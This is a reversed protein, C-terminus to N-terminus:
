QGPTLLPEARPGSTKVYVVIPYVKLFKRTQFWFAWANPIQLMAKELSGRGLNNLNYGQPWVHGAGPGM